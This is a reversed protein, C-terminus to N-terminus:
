GAPTEAAAEVGTSSLLELAEADSFHLEAAGVELLRRALRIRALPLRERGDSWCSRRTRRCASRWDALVDLAEPSNLEHIDDFVILSPPLSTLATLLRPMVQGLDVNWPQSGM